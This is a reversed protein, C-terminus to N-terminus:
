CGDAVGERRRRRDMAPARSARRLAHAHGVRSGLAAPSLIHRHEHLFRPTALAPDPWRKSRESRVFVVSGAPIRGHRKEWALIGTVQLAHNPDKAVQAVISIVALPRLGDV